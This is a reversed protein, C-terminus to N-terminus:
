KKFRNFELYFKDTNEIALILTTKSLENIIKNAFEVEFQNLGDFLNEILVIQPHRIYARLLATLKQQALNFKKVKAKLALECKSLDSEYPLISFNFLEKYNKVKRLKLPYYLNKELSKQAFLVPKNPLFAISLDKDKINKIDVGNIKIVGDYHKDIKCLSRFLSIYGNFEDGVFLTNDDFTASFNYLSYFEQIYQLYVNKFEVISKM